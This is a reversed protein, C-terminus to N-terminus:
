DKPPRLKVSAGGRVLKAILRATKDTSKEGISKKMSSIKVCKEKVEHGEFEVQMLPNDSMFLLSFSIQTNEPIENEMFNWDLSKGKLFKPHNSEQIEWEFTSPKNKTGNAKPSPVLKMEHQLQM